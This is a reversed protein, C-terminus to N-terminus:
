SVAEKSLSASDVQLSDLEVVAGERWTCLRAVADEGLVIFSRHEYWDGSNLYWAGKKFGSLDFLGPQHCHGMIVGDVGSSAVLAGAYDSLVKVAAPNPDFSSFRRSVAAALAQAGGMPLVMTYLRHVLSLDSLWRMFSTSGGHKPGFDGHELQIMQGAWELSMSRRIPSYGTLKEVYGRHWRDHNGMLYTITCGREVLPEILRAWKHVHEPAEGGADIFADFVDGLFIVHVPQITELCSSLQRISESDSAEDKGLHLDSVVLIV